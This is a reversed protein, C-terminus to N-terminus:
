RKTYEIWLGGNIMTLGSTVAYNWQGNMYRLEADLRNFLWRRSPEETASYSGGYNIITDPEGSFDTSFYQDNTLTAFVYCKRFIPKGDVWTGVETETTSYNALRNVKSSIDNIVTDQQEDKEKAILDRIQRVNGNESIFSYEDM